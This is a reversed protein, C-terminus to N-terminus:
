DKVIIRSSSVGAEKLKKAISVKPNLWYIHKNKAATDEVDDYFQGGGGLFNSLDIYVDRKLPLSQIFSNFEDLEPIDGYLKYKLPKESLKILGLQHPFYQELLEIYNDIQGTKFHSYMLNFLIAMLKANETGKDPSWFTFKRSGNTTTFKGNVNIGDTGSRIDYFTVSDGKLLIKHSGITDISGTVRFKYNELFNNLSDLDNPNLLARETNHHGNNANNYTFSILCSDANSIISLSSSVLFSPFFGMELNYQLFASQALCSAQLFFLFCTALAWRM